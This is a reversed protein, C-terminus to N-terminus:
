FVFLVFYVLGSISKPGDSTSIAYLSTWYDNCYLDLTEM